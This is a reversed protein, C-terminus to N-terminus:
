HGVIEIQGTANNQAQHNAWLSNIVLLLAVVVVVLLSYKASM